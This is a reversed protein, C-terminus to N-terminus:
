PWCHPNGPMVVDGPDRQRRTVLGAFPARIQTDALRARQFEINRGASRHQEKAEAIAAQAKALGAEAVALSETAKDYDAQSM